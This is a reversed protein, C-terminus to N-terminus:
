AYCDSCVALSGEHKVPKKCCKCRRRRMRKQYGSLESENGRYGFRAYCTTMANTLRRLLHGDHGQEYVVQLIKEQSDVDGDFSKMVKALTERLHRERDEGM